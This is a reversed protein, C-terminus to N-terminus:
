RLMQLMTSSQGDSANSCHMVGPIQQPRGHLGWCSGMQATVTRLLLSGTRGQTSDGHSCTLTSCAGPRCHASPLDDGVMTKEPESRTRYKVRQKYEGILREVWLEFLEHTIGREICQLYLQCTLLHLNFTCASAGPLEQM